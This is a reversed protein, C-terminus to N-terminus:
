FQVDPPFHCIETDNVTPFFHACGAERYKKKDGLYDGYVHPSLLFIWYVLDESIEWSSYHLEIIDSDM